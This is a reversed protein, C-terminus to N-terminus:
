ASIGPQIIINSNIAWAAQFGSVSYVRPQMFMQYPDAHLQSIESQTLVRDEWIYKLYTVGGMSERNGHNRGNIFFTTTPPGSGTYSFDSEAIHQGDIHWRSTSLDATLAWSFPVNNTIEDASRNNDFSDGVVIFYKSGSLAAWFTNDVASSGFMFNGVTKDSVSIIGFASIARSTDIQYGTDIWPGNFTDSLTKVGLGISSNAWVPEGRIYNFIGHYGNGSLDLLKGGIGENMIWCAVIGKSLPHSWDIPTGLLPKQGPPRKLTIISM